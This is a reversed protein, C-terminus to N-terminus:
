MPLFFLVFRSNKLVIFRTRYINHLAKPLLELMQYKLITGMKNRDLLNTRANRSAAGRVLSVSKM